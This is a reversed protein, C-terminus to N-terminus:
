KKPEEPDFWTELIKTHIWAFVPLAFVGLLNAETFEHQWFKWNIAAIRRLSSPHIIM